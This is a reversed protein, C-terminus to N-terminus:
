QESVRGKRNMLIMGLVILGVGSLRKVSLSEHFLASSAFVVLVYNMSSLPYLFSIEQQAVAIIWCVSGLM